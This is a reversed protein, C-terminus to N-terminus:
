LLSYGFGISLESSDMPEKSVGKYEAGIAQSDFDPLNEEWVNLTDVEISPSATCYTDLFANAVAISVSKAGRPSSVINLLRMIKSRSSRTYVAAPLTAIAPQAEVLRLLM